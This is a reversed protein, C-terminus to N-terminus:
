GGDCRKKTKIVHYPDILLAIELSFKLIIFILILILCTGYLIVLLPFVTIWFVLSCNDAIPNRYALVVCISQYLYSRVHISIPDFLVTVTDMELASSRRDIKWTLHLVASAGRTQNPTHLNHRPRHSGFSPNALLSSASASNVSWIFKLNLAWKSFDQFLASIEAMKWLCYPTSSIKFPNRWTYRGHNM